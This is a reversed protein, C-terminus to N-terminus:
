FVVSLSPSFKVVCMISLPTNESVFSHSELNLPSIHFGSLFISLFSHVSSEHFFTNFYDKLM